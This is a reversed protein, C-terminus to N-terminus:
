QDTVNLINRITAAFRHWKPRRGLFIISGPVILEIRTGSGPSSTLTFKGGVRKARERMGRLGFHGAKGQTGIELEIGKGNDEVTLSFDQSYCLKVQLLSGGSHALANRIAEYGIRYIEDRVIPHMEPATGAVVLRAEILGRNVCDDVSRQFAGALDNKQTTSTRVSNLAARLERMAQGLWNSLQGMTERMRVPDAPGEISSDAALKSGQLTQLLTDHLDRALRTREALREDFRASISSAVQRMRIQFLAWLVLVGSVICLAVFSHTQYWAPAIAFDLTTGQENWIGDGNCAIV